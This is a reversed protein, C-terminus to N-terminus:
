QRCHAFEGFLHRPPFNRVKVGLVSQGSARVVRVPCGERTDHSRGFCVCVCVCVCVCPPLYQAGYGTGDDVPRGNIQM